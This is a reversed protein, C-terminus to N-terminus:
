TSATSAFTPNKIWENLIKIMFAASQGGIIHAGMNKAAARVADSDTHNLGSTFLVVVDVKPIPPCESESLMLIPKDLFSIKPCGEAFVNLRRTNQKAWFDDGCSVLVGTACPSDDLSSAGDELKVPQERQLGVVVDDLLCMLREVNCKLKKNEERLSKIDEKSNNKHRRLDQIQEGMERIKLKLGTCEDEAVKLLDLLEQNGASLSAVQQKLEAIQGEYFNPEKQRLDLLTPVAKELDCIASELSDLEDNTITM